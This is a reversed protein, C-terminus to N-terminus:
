MKGYVDPQWSLRAASGLDISPNSEHPMVTDVPSPARNSYVSSTAVTRATASLVPDKRAHTIVAQSSSNTSVGTAQTWLSPTEKRSRTEKHPTQLHAEPPLQILPWDKNSSIIIKLDHNHTHSVYDMPRPESDVKVPPLAKENGKQLAKIIAASASNPAPPPVKDSAKTVNKSVDFSLSHASYKSSELAYPRVDMPGDDQTEISGKRAKETDPFGFDFPAPSDDRVRAVPDHTFFSGPFGSSSLDSEM